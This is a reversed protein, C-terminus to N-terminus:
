QVGRFMALSARTEGLYRQPASYGKQAEPSAWTVASLITNTMMYFRAITARIQANPFRQLNSCSQPFATQIRPLAVGFDIFAPSIHM